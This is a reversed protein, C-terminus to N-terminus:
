AEPEVCNAGGRLKCLRYRLTNAWYQYAAEVDHWSDTSGSISKTGARQDVIAVLLAGSKADTIKVELSAEGVFSPQGGRAMGVGGSLIKSGPHISSITDMVPNSTEAETIAAQIRLVDPGAEHVIEYDQKIVDGIKTWLDNALRQRDEPEIEKLQGDKGLWVTVPDVIVKKYNAWTARQNIYRLQAKGEEGKQLMSYDGLFGAPEATSTPQTAACGSVLAVVTMFVIGNLWIM